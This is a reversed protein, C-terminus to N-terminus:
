IAPGAARVLADVELITIGSPDTEIVGRLRLERLARAVVERVSGTADALAQQTVRLHAGHLRTDSKEARELLDRAVRARVTAFATGALVRYVHQLRDTLEAVLAMSVDPRLRASRELRAVDIHVLEAPEVAEIAVMVWPRGLALGGVLDGRKAYGVTLQRGDGTPLFQRVVGSLVVAAWPADPEPASVSGAPYHVIPGSRILEGACETSLRALFGNGTVAALQDARDASQSRPSSM